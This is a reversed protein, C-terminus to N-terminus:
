QWYWHLHGQTAGAATSLGLRKWPWIAYLAGLWAKTKM